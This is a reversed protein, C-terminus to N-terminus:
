LISTKRHRSQQQKHNLLPPIINHSQVTQGHVAAVVINRNAKGRRYKQIQDTIALYAVVISPWKNFYTAVFLSSATVLAALHVGGAFIRWIKYHSRALEAYTAERTTVDLDYFKMIPVTAIQQM